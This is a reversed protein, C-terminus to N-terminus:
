TSAVALLVAVGSAPWRVGPLSAPPRPRRRSWATIMSQRLPLRLLLARRIPFSRSLLIAGRRPRCHAPREDARARRHARRHRALIETWIQHSLLWWRAASTGGDNMQTSLSLRCCTPAHPETATVSSILLQQGPVAVVEGGSREEESREETGPLLGLRTVSSSAASV